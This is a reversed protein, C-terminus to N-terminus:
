RAKTLCTFPGYCEEQFFTKGKLIWNIFKSRGPQSLLQQIFRFIIVGPIGNLAWSDISLLCVVLSLLEVWTCLALVAPYRENNKCPSCDGLQSISVACCWKLQFIQGTSDVCQVWVIQRNPIGWNWLYKWSFLLRLLCNIM